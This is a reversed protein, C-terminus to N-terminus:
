SLLQTKSYKRLLVPRILIAALALLSFLSILAGYYFSKPEFEFRVVHEGRPVQVGRLVYNARTLPVLEGDVRARWGPYFSDSTVLFSPSASNTRVEMSTGSLHTVHAETVSEENASELPSALPEEVLATRAPDYRSGDPMRSTKITLLIEEPTLKLAERVLWARPMVEVNEYIGAQGADEVFRWQSGQISLPGIPTSDGSTEDFLSLKELTIAGSRGTWQIEIDSISKAPFSSDLRALYFHGECPEGNMDARYSSFVTAQRHSMQPKISRCDYSWEATDRGALLVANLVNGEVDKLVVRAVEENDKLATACALRTVFYLDTARVPRPLAFKVGERPPHDCGGGLWLDMNEKAWIIGREDKMVESRPVFAYRVALLNLSEDDADRWTSAISGDPLMSAFRMFRYSTLPSYGTANPVDWLRSLNPPMEDTAGLTGRVSILRQHSTRLLDGYKGSAAPPNLIEKRPAFDHWSYFWGFSALDLVLVALLLGRRLQSAPERQWYFIVAASALFVLLPVGVSPNSWPRADLEAVGKELAYRSLNNSLLYLLGAGMLAAGVSATILLLRRSAEGKLIARVGMGSLVSVAFAAEIFHRAPARFRNIVPFQYALSALPTLNGLTLLLALAGITLWFISVAKRRSVFFGVGALLLPLLGVYGTLETLNWEGFYPTTGYRPLGGFAAPFLLLPLQKFPLSYSIFDSFLFDARASLSALELTPLIQLAALGLGLIFLLAAYLFFRRRGTMATWGLVLAYAISVILSYAVIQLHGALVNCAVALCGLILWGRSCQRRLMELSWIILPLWIASHLIATHGLHAFMFGCMSYVIGGFYGALRSGTLTYVYGYTFCGAMVYASVVFINWGGPIWGTLLSPPYWAMVQPDATMPFGGALLPDWFVKHSQFFTLHYLLGDGLRGGGPTLLSDYFLVPSFFLTYLLSFFLLVLFLHRLSGKTAPSISFM